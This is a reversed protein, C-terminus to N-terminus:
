DGIGRMGAYALLLGDEHTVDELTLGKLRASHWGKQNQLKLSLHDEQQVLVKLIGCFNSGQCNVRLYTNGNESTREDFFYNVRHTESRILRALERQYEPSDVPYNGLIANTQRGSCDSNQCAWLSNILLAFLLIKKM